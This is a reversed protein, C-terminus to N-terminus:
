RSVDLVDAFRRRRSAPSPAARGARVLVHPHMDTQLEARLAANTAPEEIVRTLLSARYGHRTLELLVRELAEGTRLWAAPTDHRTGLLLLEGASWARLDEGFADAVKRDRDAQRSLRAVAARNEPPIPLLETREDAAVGMLTDVLGRPTMTVALLRRNTHRLAIQTDLAGLTPDAAPSDPVTLRALLERRAPDPLRDVVPDYGAAALAVRANLVACGCSVLLQRGRPDLAELRRRWDAHIELTSPGLRLRWPQTNHISPAQTARVAARRVLRTVDSGLVSTM